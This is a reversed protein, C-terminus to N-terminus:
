NNRGDTKGGIPVQKAKEWLEKIKGNGNLETYSEFMEQCMEFDEITIHNEKLARKCITRIERALLLKTGKCDADIKGRLAKVEELTKGQTDKKKEISKDILDFIGKVVIGGLLIFQIIIAETM